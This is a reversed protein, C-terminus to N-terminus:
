IRQYGNMCRPLSLFVTLTKGLFVVCHGQGPNSGLCNLGSNLTSVLLGGHRGCSFCILKRKEPQGKDEQTSNDLPFLICIKWDM